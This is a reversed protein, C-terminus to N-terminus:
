TAVQVGATEPIVQRHTAQKTGMSFNVANVLCAQYLFIAKSKRNQELIQRAKIHTSSSHSILDFFAALDLNDIDTNLESRLQISV